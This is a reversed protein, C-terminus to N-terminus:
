REDDGEENKNIKFVKKTRMQEQVLKRSLDSKAEALYVCALALAGPLAVDEQTYAMKLAKNIEPIARFATELLEPLEEELDGDWQLVEGEAKHRYWDDYDSM